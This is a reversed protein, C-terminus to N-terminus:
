DEFRDAFTNDIRRYSDLVTPSPRAAISRTKIQGEEKSELPPRPVSAALCVLHAISLFQKYDGAARPTANQVTAPRAHHTAAFVLTSLPHGLRPTLSHSSSSSSSPPHVTKFWLFPQSPVVGPCGSGSGPIKCALTGWVLLKISSISRWSV